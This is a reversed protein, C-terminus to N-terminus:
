KVLEIKAKAEQIMPITMNQSIIVIDFDTVSEGTMKVFIGKKYAFYWSSKGEVDGEFSMDMGSQEGEGEITGKSQSSIKACEYGNVVEFGELTHVSEIVTHFELNGSKEMNDDKSIWTDGIKVPKEALDPFISSFSSKLNNEGAQGMYTLSEASSLDIEKGLPSLIMDFSKGIIQRLDPSFDGQMSSTNMEMVEVTIGLVLDEEKAGKSTASFQMSVNTETEMTQGMVELEQYQGGSVKYQLAEDGEMRYTLILGTKPDGWLEKKAACEMLMVTILLTLLLLIFVRRLNM